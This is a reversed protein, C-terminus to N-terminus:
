SVAPIAMLEPGEGYIARARAHFAGVMRRVADQFVVGIAAQLVRSRFEFDVHFNVVCGEPSTAFDWRNTLYRCPGNEYRVVMGRPWDLAVRSSCRERFPGFGITMDAVLEADTRSRVRAAVCWPLFAPYKAVDAVLDFLQDARYPVVQRDSFAPM